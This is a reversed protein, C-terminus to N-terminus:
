QLVYWRALLEFETNDIVFSELNLFRLNFNQKTFLNFFRTKPHGNISISALEKLNNYNIKTGNENSFNGRINLNNLRKCNSLYTQIEDDIKANTFKLKTLSNCHLSLLLKLPEKDINKWSTIEFEAIQSAKRFLYVLGDSVDENCFLKIKKLHILNDAIQILHKNELGNLDIILCELNRLYNCILGIYEDNQINLAKLQKLNPVCSIIEFVTSREFYDFDLFLRKLNSKFHRVLNIADNNSFRNAYVFLNLIEWYVPRVVEIKYNPYIQAFKMLSQKDLYHFVKQQISCPLDDFWSKDFVQEYDEDEISLTFELLEFIKNINNINM